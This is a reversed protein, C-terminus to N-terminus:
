ATSRPWSSTRPTSPCSPSGRTSRAPSRGPRHRRERRARRPCGGHPRRDARRGEGGRRRLAGDPAPVPGAPRRGPRRHPQDPRGDPLRLRHDRLPARPHEDRRRDDPQAHPDRDQGLQDGVHVRADRGVPTAEHDRRGDALTRTGMSLITTVVAPLGTPIASVAFAIATVFLTQFTEGRSLGLAMSAALAVGAIVLIQNTLRNLQRTLPTAEDKESQLLGSIHGVETAMGTATVVITGAGRTVNTNMYAMDIRDGLPTDVKEIAEVGKSAPVSEGTLASEDIELTAARIIRGDAPVVDGAEVNVVDGPVIQDAPIEVVQGDRVVKAKVLMMGPLAAVAKAAKGEQNLGMFANVLTLIILLRGTPGARDPLSVIGAVLLVIQMPDAYQRLFARWRPERKGEAFKNPGFRQRM